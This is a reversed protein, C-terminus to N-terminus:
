FVYGIRLQAVLEDGSFYAREAVWTRRAGVAWTLVLHGLPQRWGLALALSRSRAATSCRVFPSNPDAPDMRELCTYQKAHTHEYRASPEVFVGRQAARLYLPAGVAVFAGGRLVDAEHEREDFSNGSEVRIGVRAHVGVDLSLGPAQRALSVLDVAVHVPREARVPTAILLVLLWGRRV